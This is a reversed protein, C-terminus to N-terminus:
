NSELNFQKDKKIKRYTANPYVKKLEAWGDSWSIYNLWNKKEVECQIKELAIFYNTTEM